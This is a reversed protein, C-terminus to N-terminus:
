PFDPFLLPGSPPPVFRYFKLSIDAAKDTQPTKNDHGILRGIKRLSLVQCLFSLALNLMFVAFKLYM